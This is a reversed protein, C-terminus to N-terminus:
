REIHYPINVRKTKLNHFNINAFTLSEPHPVSLKSSLLHIINSFIMNYKEMVPLTGYAVQDNTCTEGYDYGEPIYITDPELNTFDFNNYFVLDVRLSIVVDYNINEKEIHQKLLLFVREKNIFHCTMNHIRTEPRNTPYISFDCNYQVIDNCYKVPKYLNIFDNLQWPHSNDSSLFFDIDNGRGITDLINNYHDTCRNLRGYILVAIRM